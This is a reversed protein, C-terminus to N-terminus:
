RAMIAVVELGLVEMRPGFTVRAFCHDIIGRNSKSHRRFSEALRFATWVGTEAQSSLERGRAGIKQMM